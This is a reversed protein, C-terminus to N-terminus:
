CACHSDSDQWSAEVLVDCEKKTLVVLNKVEPLDGVVVSDLHNEDGDRFSWHEEVVIPRGMRGKLAKGPEDDPDQVLRSVYVEIPTVRVEMISSIWEAPISLASLLMPFNVGRAERELDIPFLTITGDDGVTEAYSVGEAASVTVRSRSDATRIKM